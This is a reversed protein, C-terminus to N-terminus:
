EIRCYEWLSQLIGSRGHGERQEFKAKTVNQPFHPSELSISIKMISAFFLCLSLLINLPLIPLIEHSIVANWAKQMKKHEMVVNM